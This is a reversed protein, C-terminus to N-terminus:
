NNPDGKQGRKEVAKRIGKLGPHNSDYSKLIACVDDLSRTKRLKKIDEIEIELGSLDYEKKKERGKVGGQITGPEPTELVQIEGTNYETVKIYKARQEERDIIRM